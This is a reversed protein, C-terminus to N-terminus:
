CVFAVSDACPCHIFEMCYRVSTETACDGLRHATQEKFLRKAVEIRQQQIEVCRVLITKSTSVLNRVSIAYLAIQVKPIENTNSTLLNAKARLMRNSMKVANSAAFIQTDNAAIPLM